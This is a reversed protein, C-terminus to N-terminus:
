NSSKLEFKTIEKLILNIENNLKAYSSLNEVNLTNKINMVMAQTLYYYKEAKYYNGRKEFYKGALFIVRWSLPTITINKLKELAKQINDFSDNTKAKMKIQAIWYDMEIGVFINNNAFDSLKEDSLLKKAKDLFKMEIFLGVLLFSIFAYNYNSEREDSESLEELCNTLLGIATDKENSSLKILAKLLEIKKQYSSPLLKNDSLRNLENLIPFLKSAECLCFLIKSELLLVEALEVYNGIDNFILKAKSLYEISLDYSCIKYNVEALNAIAIGYSNKDGLNEFITKARAYMTISKDYEALDYYLVGYNLLLKGERELNGNLQNLQLAENWFLQANELDGKMAYVNGINIKAGCIRNTLNEINFLNIADSFKNIAPTPNNNYFEILGILISAEGRTEVKVDNQCIIGECISLVEEYKGLQLNAYGISVLVESREQIDTIDDLIENLTDIGSQLEGLNILVTGKRILLARREENTLQGSLAEDSISYCSNYDGHLLYEESLDIKIKNLKAEELPLTLLHSLIEIIYKHTPVKKARNIEIYYHKFCNEYDKALEYHYALVYDSVKISSGALWGAILIHYTQVNATDSVIYDKYNRSYFDYTNNSVNFQLINEEVLKPIRIGSKRFLQKQINTVINVSLPNNLIALIRVFEIEDESLIKKHYAFLENNSLNILKSINNSNKLIFGEHFDFYLFSNRVLIEIFKKINGPQLDTYKQLSSYLNNKPMSDSCNAEIFEKTEIETYPKLNIVDLSPYFDKKISTTQKEAILVKIGNVVLIPLILSLMEIVIPEFASIEDILLIFKLSKSVEGFVALYKEINVKDTSFIIQEIENKLAEALNPFVVKNFCILKLLQKEDPLFHFFLEASLLISNENKRRIEHLISSKGSNSPGVFLIPKNNIPDIIFDTVLKLIEERGVFVTAASWSLWVDEKILIELSKLVHLSTSFRNNPNSQLLNEIVSVYKESRENKSFDIKGTIQEKYIDIESNSNIHNKGFIIKYLLAGLSYLDVKNSLSENNLVEPAMYKLSGFIKNKKKTKHFSLGFDILKIEKTSRNYLINEPKLDGYVYNSQHIYFLATCLSYILSDVELEILEDLVGVLNFSEFYELTIYLDSLEIQFKDELAPDASLVIGFDYSKIINPHNLTRLVFYENRFDEKESKSRKHSLIKVSVNIKNLVDYCLFVHSRGRGIEKLVKYRHNIM